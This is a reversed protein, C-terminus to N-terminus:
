RLTLQITHDAINPFSTHLYQPHLLVPATDAINSNILSQPITFIMIAPGDTPTATEWSYEAWVCTIQKIVIIADDLMSCKIKNVM